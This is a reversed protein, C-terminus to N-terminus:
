STAAAVAAEFAAAAEHANAPDAEIATDAVRRLGILRAVADMMATANTNIAEALETGTEGTINAETEILATQQATATGALYATAADAKTGWATMEHAPVGAVFQAAARDSAARVRAKAAEAKAATIEAASPAARSEVVAAIADEATGGPRVVVDVAQGTEDDTVRWEDGSIHEANMSM